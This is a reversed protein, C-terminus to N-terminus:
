ADIYEGTAAQFTSEGKAGGGAGNQCVNVVLMLAMTGMGKGM